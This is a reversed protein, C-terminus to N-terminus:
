IEGGKRILNAYDLIMDIRDSVTECYRDDKFDVAADIASAQIERLFQEPTAYTADDLAEVEATYGDKRSCQRIVVLGLQRLLEVQAALEELREAAELIAANAVGDPSEIDNALQRLAAALTQTTTKM